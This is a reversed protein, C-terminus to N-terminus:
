VALRAKIDAASLRAEQAAEAAREAVESAKEAAEAAAHLLRTKLDEHADERPQERLTQLRQMADLLSGPFAFPAAPAVAPLEDFKRNRGELVWTPPQRLDWVVGFWSLVKLIYYSADVEWWFFGNRATSQYFHHNNHWGEGMTLLSLWFNNRSTDTTDYRRSGWVHALSNITFTGHYLVVTSVMAGWFAWAMGGMLYLAGGFVFPWVAWTRQLFMLEPYKAFDKIQHLPAEVYKPCLIWGHHSWWFGRKPSHIDEDMDSFKHHHRHHGAWWLVGKQSATSGLLALIFQFVRSTKYGRHAFYRHYGATIGFMRLYYAGVMVFFLEWTPPWLWMGAIVAVHLLVYPTSSVIAFREDPAREFREVASTM